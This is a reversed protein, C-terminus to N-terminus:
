FMGLIIMVLLTLRDRLRRRLQFVNKLMFKFDTVKSLKRGGIVYTIQFVQKRYWHEVVLNVRQKYAIFGANTGFQNNAHQRYLMLPKDDIHWKYGSNRCFAYALWDHLAIQETSVGSSLIFNKLGTASKKNFVYTCGPGASEFFHDYKRQPYSKKILSKRGNSWFAIVDSSVVDVKEEKMVEYAHQLKNELWIDDQDAFSIADFAEFDVDRLLRFFNPGAGGFREGYPLIIVRCNSIALQSAWEHTGDSSLDVSIYLTIEIGKQNLITNVQEEIWQMGNYAAMLVAFKPLIVEKEKM